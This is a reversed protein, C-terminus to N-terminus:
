PLETVAVKYGLTTGVASAAGLLVMAQAFLPAPLNLQALATVVGGLVGIIGMANGVRATKQNALGSIGGICCLSSFLYGM